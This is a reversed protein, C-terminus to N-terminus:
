ARSAGSRRPDEAKLNMKCLCANPELSFQFRIQTPSWHSGSQYTIAKIERGPETVRVLRCDELFQEDALTVYVDRIFRFDLEVFLETNRDHFM